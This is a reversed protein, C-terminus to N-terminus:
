VAPAHGGDHRHGIRGSFWRQWAIGALVIVVGLIILIAAVTRSGGFADIILASVWGYLGLAGYLLFIQEDLVMSLAIAVISLALFILGTLGLADDFSDIGLFVFTATLGVLYLWLAYPRMRLRDVVFGAVVFAVGYLSMIWMSPDSREARPIWQDVFTLWAMWGLVGTLLLMWPVKLRFAFIAAAAAAVIQSVMMLQNVREGRAEADVDGQDWPAPWWGLVKYLTYGFLLIAVTGIAVLLSGADIALPQGTRRLVFGAAWPVAVALAGWLLRQGDGMDRWGLAVFVISAVVVLFGGIYTILTSPTIGPRPPRAALTGTTELERIAQEQRGSIIGATRWRALAADLPETYARDTSPVDPRETM